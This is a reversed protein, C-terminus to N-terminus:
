WSVNGWREGRLWKSLGAHKQYKGEYAITYLMGDTNHWFLDFRRNFKGNLKKSGIIKLNAEMNIDRLNKGTWNASGTLLEYKNTKENTISMIKAHNQEGHTEYWRIVLKAGQHRRKEMLYAAVQRNPTGDKIYNFADKNPDLIIQVPHILKHSASAILDVIAIDSLYFMQIRVIDDPALGNLMTIIEDRIRSESLYIVEISRTNSPSTAELDIDLAPLTQSPYNGRYARTSRSGWLTKKVKISHLVDERINMYIYKAMEGQVSIAFNTSPISANHPNASSVLAEYSGDVDTVLLKRHNAKLSLANWIMEASIGKENLPNDVPVTPSFLFSAITGPIGFTLTNVGRAIEKVGENIPLRHASKTTLLDSIFVDVGSARLTKVAPAIRRGYSRNIPDLVLTVNMEPYARKQAVVADTLEKVIDRQPEDKAYMTDFLFVSAVIQRKANKIMDIAKDGITLTSFRTQTAANYGSFSEHLEIQDESVYFSPSQTALRTAPMDFPTKTSESRRLVQQFHRIHKALSDLGSASANLPLLGILAIVVVPKM